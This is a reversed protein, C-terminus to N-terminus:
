VSLSRVDEECTHREAYASFATSGVVHSESEPDPVPAMGGVGFSHSSHLMELHIILVLRCDVPSRKGISTANGQMTRLDNTRM